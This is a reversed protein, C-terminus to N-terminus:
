VLTHTLIDHVSGPLILM